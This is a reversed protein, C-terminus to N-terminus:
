ASRLNREKVLSKRNQLLLEDFWLVLLLDDLGMAPEQFQQLQLDLSYLSVTRGEYRLNVEGDDLLITQYKREWRCLPGSYQGSQGLLVEAEPGPPCLGPARSHSGERRPARLALKPKPLM